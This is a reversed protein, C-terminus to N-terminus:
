ALWTGREKERHLGDKLKGSSDKESSKGWEM